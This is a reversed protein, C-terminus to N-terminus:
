PTFFVFLLVSINVRGKCSLIEESNRVGAYTVSEELVEVARRNQKKRLSFIEFHIIVIIFQKM